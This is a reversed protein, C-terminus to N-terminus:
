FALKQSILLVHGDNTNGAHGAASEQVDFKQSFFVADASTTLGPFWTYTAGVGVERNSRIYDSSATGYNHYGSGNLLSAAVEVKDFGYKAGFTWADQSKTQGKVTNFHGADVFSGGVTVGAYTMQSGISYTTFDRYQRGNFNRSDNGSGFNATASAVAAVPGFKGTYQLATGTVNKYAQQGAKTLSVNNGKEGYNPTFSVGVQVKHNANGVKPTYYTVKTSNDDDDVYSPTIAFFDASVFDTFSGGVQGQGITPAGVFLDVSASHADGFMAKGFNGSLWVYADHEKVTNDNDTTSDKGNWLGVKAGYEVGGSAKGSAAIDIQYITEFDSGTKARDGVNNVIDSEHFLAARFDVYGGVNVSLPSEAAQAAGAFAVGFLATTALLIKRM